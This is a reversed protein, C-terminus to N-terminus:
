VARKKGSFVAVAAEIGQKALRAQEAERTYLEAHAIDDHGLAGMLERTSAGGEAMLKGLTKRLGHITCGPELGAKKTWLAMHGTLSKASFPKKYATQLITKGSMDTADLVERLSAVIPLTMDKDTKQQRMRMLDGAVDEPRLAAIDGRRHGQWLALAYVLRATTGAPWREEYAAMEGMTWARWGKYEPRWSIRHTPDSDIWEEDMAAMVMQRIRALLHRGVHPTEIRDALIQNIHRRKLDEMPVDAWTLTAGEAIPASLFAEVIAEHRAKTESTNRLWKPNQKAARWAARFSRPVAAGPLGHVEAKRPVAGAILAEYEAEFAPEGPQGKLYVSKTGRRFRWRITGTRDEFSSLYPRPEDSM